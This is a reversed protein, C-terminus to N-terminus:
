KMHKVINNQIYQFQKRNYRNWPAAPLHKIIRRATERENRAPLECAGLGEYFNKQFSFYSHDREVEGKRQSFDKITRKRITSEGAMLYYYRDPFGIQEDMFAHLFTNSISQLTFSDHINNIVPKFIDGDLVILAYKETKKLASQWRRMQHDCEEFWNEGSSEPYDRSVVYAGYRDQLELCVATKGVARLGEICIIPMM